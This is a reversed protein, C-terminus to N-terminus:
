DSPRFRREREGRAICRDVAFIASATLLLDAELTTLGGFTKKFKGEGTQLNTGAELVISCGGTQKGGRRVYVSRANM